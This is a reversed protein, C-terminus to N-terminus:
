VDHILAPYDANVKTREHLLFKEKGGARSQIRKAGLRGRREMTRGVALHLHSVSYYKVSKIADVEYVSPRQLHNGYILAAKSLARVKSLIRM